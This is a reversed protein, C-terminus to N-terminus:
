PALLDICIVKRVLKVHEEKEPIVQKVASVGLRSTRVHRVPIPAHQVPPANEKETVPKQKSLTASLTQRCEL